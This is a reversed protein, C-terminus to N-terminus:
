SAWIPMVRDSIGLYASVSIASSYCRSLDSFYVLLAPGREEWLLGARAAAFFWCPAGVCLALM